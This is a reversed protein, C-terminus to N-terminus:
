GIEILEIEFTLEQGVLPHNADMTATTESIEIVTVVITSGDTQTMQLQQGVEINEPLQSLEMTFVLDSRHPGYAQAVPITVTKSEGVKMGIVAQEFGPILQGQGITFELPERQISTDFVTGNNLTGTYHVKVTDGTKAVIGSCGSVLLAALLIIGTVTHWRKLM